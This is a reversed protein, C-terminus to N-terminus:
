GVPASKRLRDRLHLFEDCVEGVQDAGFERPADPWLACLARHASDTFRARGRVVGVGDLAAMRENYALSGDLGLAQPPRVTVHPGDIRVPYGGPLGLPGPVHGFWPRGARAAAYLPPAASWAGLVNRAAPTLARVPALRAALDPLPTDDLWALAESAPHGPAHLHWHHALMRLRPRDAPDLTAPPPAALTGINGVGCLVPLGAAQILGNVADPFCANVLATPGTDACARAVRLALDAQLPLTIGFGAANLLGSWGTRPGRAEEPSQHSVCVVVAGPRVREMLARLGSDDAADVRHPTFVCSSGVAAAHAGAVACVRRAARLDRAAVHVMAPRDADHALATAIGAGFQGSGLVLIRV